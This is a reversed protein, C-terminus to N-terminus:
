RKWIVVVDCVVRSGMCTCIVDMVSMVGKATKVIWGWGERPKYSMM